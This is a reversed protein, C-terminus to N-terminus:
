SVHYEPGMRCKTSGDETTEAQSPLLDSRRGVLIMPVDNSLAYLAEQVKFEPVELIWEVRPDKHHGFFDLPFCILVVNSSPYVLPTLRSNLSYSRGCFFLTSLENTKAQTDDAEQM